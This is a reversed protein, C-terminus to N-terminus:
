MWVHTTYRKFAICHQPQPATSTHSDHTTCTAKAGGSQPICDGLIEIFAIWCRQASITFQCHCWCVRDVSERRSDPVRYQNHICIRANRIAEHVMNISTCRVFQVTHSRPHTCHAVWSLLPRKFWCFRYRKEYGQHTDIAVGDVCGICECHCIYRSSFHPDCAM